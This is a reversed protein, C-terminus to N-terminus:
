RGRRRRAVHGALAAFLMLAAPGGSGGRGAAGCSFLGAGEVSGGSVQTGQPPVPPPPKCEGVVNTESSCTYAGPCGNGEVGRCGDFCAGTASDCVRGSKADGCDTDTACACVNTESCVGSRCIIPGSDTTCPSGIPLGCLNDLSDCTGSQCVVAAAEATCLGELPPTHNESKPMPEGNPLDELCTGGFELASPNDCWEASDCQADNTCNATCEHVATNCYPEEGFCHADTLCEVCAGTGGDLIPDCIPRDPAAEFCENDTLCDRCFGQGSTSDCYPLNGACAGPVDFCECQDELNNLNSDALPQQSLVWYTVLHEDAGGSTTASFGAFGTNGKLYSSIDKLNEVVMIPADPKQPLTDPKTQDAFGASLPAANFTMYVKMSCADAASCEYDVWVDRTDYSTATSELSQTSPDLTIPQWPAVTSGAPQAELPTGMPTGDSTHNTYGGIDLALHNGNPDSSMNNQLTDFELALSQTIGSYGFGAGAGSAGVAKIGSGIKGVMLPDEGPDNQIIFALGDGGNPPMNLAGGSIRIRFHQYFSAGAGFNLPLEHFATSLQGKKEETVRLGQKKPENSPVVEADVNVRLKSTQKLVGFDCYALDQAEAVAPGLLAGVAAAAVFYGRVARVIGASGTTSRYRQASM